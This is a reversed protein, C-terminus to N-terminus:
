NRFHKHEHSSANPNAITRTNSGGKKSAKVKNREEKIKKKIQNKAHRKNAAKKLTNKVRQLIRAVPGDQARGGSGLRHKLCDRLPSDSPCACPTSDCKKCKNGFGSFCSMRYGM